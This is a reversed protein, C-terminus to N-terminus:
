CLRPRTHSGNQDETLPCLTKSGQERRQPLLAFQDTPRDEGLFGDKNLLEIPIRGIHRQKIQRLRGCPCRAEYPPYIRQRQVASRQQKRQAKVLSKQRLGHQGILQDM